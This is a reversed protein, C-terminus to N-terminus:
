RALTVGDLRGAAHQHAGGRTRPMSSGDEDTSGGFVVRRLCWHNFFGLQEWVRADPP